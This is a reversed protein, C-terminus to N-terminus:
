YYYGKHHALCLLVMKSPSGIIAILYDSNEGDNQLIGYHQLNLSKSSTLKIQTKNFCHM